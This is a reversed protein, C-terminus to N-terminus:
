QAQINEYDQETIQGDIDMASITILDSNKAKCQQRLQALSPLIYSTPNKKLFEEHSANDRNRYYGIHGLGVASSVRVDGNKLKEIAPPGTTVPSPAEENSLTSLGPSPIPRSFPGDNVAPVIREPKNTKIHSFGPLLSLVRATKNAIQEDPFQLFRHHRLRVASGRDWFPIDDCGDAQVFLRDFDDFGRSMIGGGDADADACPHPLSLCHGLEHLLAGITTSTCARRGLHVGRGGSDDFFRDSDIPREDLFARSIDRVSSPWTFITAGGFLALFGGGLATHAFLKGNEKRTFSMVVIDIIDSRNSISSLEDAIRHYLDIGELKLADATNLGRLRHTTVEPALAFTRRGLGQNHLMECTAAQIMLGATHLRRTGEKLADEASLPDPTQFAGDSDSTLLYVLRIHPSDPPLTKHILSFSTSASFDPSHSVKIHNIGPRLLFPAKFKGDRVPCTIPETKANLTKLPASGHEGYGLVHITAAGRETTTGRIIALPCFLTDGDAPSLISIASSM